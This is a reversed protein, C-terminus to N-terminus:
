ELVITSNYSGFPNPVFIACNPDNQWEGDILFRYEYRGLPLMLSTNWVGHTNCQLPHSTRDWDNFDGAVCVDSADPAEIKFMIKKKAPMRKRTVGDAKSKATAM